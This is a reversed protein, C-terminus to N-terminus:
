PILNLQCEITTIETDNANWFEAVVSFRARPTKDPLTITYTLTLDGAPITSGKRQAVTLKLTAQAVSAASARLEDFLDFQKRLLKILSLKVV